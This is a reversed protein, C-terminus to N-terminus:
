TSEEAMFAEPDAALMRLAQKRDLNAVKAMYEQISLAVEIHFQKMEIASWWVSRMVKAERYEAICPILVVQVSRCFSVKRAAKAPKTSIM